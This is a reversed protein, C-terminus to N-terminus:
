RRRVSRPEVGDLMVGIPFQLDNNYRDRLLQIDTDLADDDVWDPRCHLLAAM